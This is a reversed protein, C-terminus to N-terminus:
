MILFLHMVNRIWKDYNLGYQPFNKAPACVCAYSVDVNVQM